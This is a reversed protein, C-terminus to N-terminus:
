DEMEAQRAKAWELFRDLDDTEPRVREEFDNRLLDDFLERLAEESDDKDIEDVSIDFSQPRAPGVYGDAAEWNVTFVEAKKRAM